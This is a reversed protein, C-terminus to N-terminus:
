STARVITSGDESESVSRPLRFLGPMEVSASRAATAHGANGDVGQDVSRGIDAEIKGAVYHDVRLAGCKRAFAEDLRSSPGTQQFDTVQHRELTSVESDTLMEGRLDSLDLPRMEEDILHNAARKARQPVDMLEM